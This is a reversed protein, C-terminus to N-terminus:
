ICIKSSLSHINSFDILIMERRTIDLNKEKHQTYKAIKM